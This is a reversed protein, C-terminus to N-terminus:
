IGDRQYRDACGPWPDDYLAKVSIFLKENEKDVEIIKVDFSEGPQILAEIEDVWGHSIESIPLITEIGEVEVLVGTDTFTGDSQPRRLIRRAVATRTQEPGLRDWGQSAIKETAKVRSATFLNNKKDTSLVVFSIEQGIFNMLRGRTARQTSGEKIGAEELPILGKVREKGVVLCMTENHTEVGIVPWTLVSRNQRSAYVEPWLDQQFEIKPLM